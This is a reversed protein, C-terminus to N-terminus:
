AIKLRGFTKTTPFLILSVPERRPVNTSKKMIIVREKKTKKKYNIYPASTESSAWSPLNILNMSRRISMLFHGRAGIRV